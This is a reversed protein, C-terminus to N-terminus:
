GLRRVVAGLVQDTPCPGYRRSDEGHPSDGVVALCGAPVPADGFRDGELAVARKVYWETAALDRSVPPKGRWAADPHPCAVVVIGNRRVRRAGRRILVRSGPRLTPMMSHGRVTVAVYTYRVWWTAAVAVGRLGAVGCLVPWYTM